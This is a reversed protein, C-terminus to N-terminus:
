PLSIRSVPFNLVRGLQRLTRDPSFLAATTLGEIAFRGLSAPNEIGARIVQEISASSRTKLPWANKGPRVWGRMGRCKTSAVPVGCAMAELVPLGFGESLSPYLLLDCSRYVNGLTELSPNVFVEDCREGSMPARNVVRVVEVDRSSFMKIASYAFALGKLKYDLNGVLLIRLRSRDARQAPHFHQRDIYPWVVHCARRYGRRLFGALGASPALLHHLGGRLASETWRRPLGTQSSMNYLRENGQVLQCRRRCSLRCHRVAHSALGSTIVITDASISLDRFTGVETYEDPAFHTRAFMGMCLLHADVDHLRLLRIQDAIVRTAGSPYMRIGLYVVGFKKVSDEM